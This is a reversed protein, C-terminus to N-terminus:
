GQLSRPTAAIALFRQVGALDSTLDEAISDVTNYFDQHSRVSPQFQIFLNDSNSGVVKSVRTWRMWM